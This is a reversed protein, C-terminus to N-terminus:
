GDRRVEGDANISRLVRGARDIIAVSRLNNDTACKVANEVSSFRRAWDFSRPPKWIAIPARAKTESPSIGHLLNGSGEQRIYFFVSPKISYNRM